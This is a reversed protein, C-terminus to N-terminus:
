ENIKLVESIAKKFVEKPIAGLSMQPLDDTPIFLLAPISQVGFMVSLNQNKDIDVKYVDIKDKYEISLEELIPSISKCPGCWEAFYDIIAPKDGKFSWEVNGEKYDFIKEKFSQENLEIVM